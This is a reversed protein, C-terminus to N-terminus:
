KDTYIKLYIDLCEPSYLVFNWNSYKGPVNGSDKSSIKKLYSESPQHSKHFDFSIILLHSANVLYIAYYQRTLSGAKLYMLAIKLIWSGM